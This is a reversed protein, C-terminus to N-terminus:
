FVLEHPKMGSTLSFRSKLYKAMMPQKKLGALVGGDIDAQGKKRDASLTKKKAETFVESNDKVEKERAFFDDTIADLKAGGLGVKTATAIVYAQNVRRLPVGNIKHPGTVLLLGSKLQKLFVVRKGRYRGALLICVTGPTLSSKLKTPKSKSAKVTKAM